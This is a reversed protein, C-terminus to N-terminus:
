RRSLENLRRELDNIVGNQGDLLSLLKRQTANQTQLLVTLREERLKCEQRMAKVEALLREEMETLAM